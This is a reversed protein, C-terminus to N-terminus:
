ARPRTKWTLALLAGALAACVLISYLVINWATAEGYLKGFHDVAWGFGKAQVTRGVYGFLGIFGAATGIAKKSAVDLAAIVILNIVPYVFFGITILMLMDFWLYGPPTFLIASFALFIPVMCLAAVM